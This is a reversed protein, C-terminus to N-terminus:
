KGPGNLWFDVFDKESILEVGGDGFIVNRKRIGGIEFTNIAAGIIRSSDGKHAGPFYLIPCSEASGDQVPVKVVLAVGRFQTTNSLNLVEPNSLYKNYIAAHELLVAGAFKLAAGQTVEPSRYSEFIFDNTCYRALWVLLLVGVLGMLIMGINRKM